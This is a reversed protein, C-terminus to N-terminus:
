LQQSGCHTLSQACPARNTVVALSSYRQAISYRVFPLEVPSSTHILLYLVGQFLAAHNVDGGPAPVSPLWAADLYPEVM